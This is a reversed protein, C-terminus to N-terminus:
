RKRKQHLGCGACWPRASDLYYKSFDLAIRTDFYPNKAGSIYSLLLVQEAVGVPCGKLRLYKRKRAQLLKFSVAAM